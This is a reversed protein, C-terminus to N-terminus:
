LIKPAQSDDKTPLLEELSLSAPSEPDSKADKKAPDEAVFSRYSKILTDLARITNADLPDESALSLLNLKRLERELIDTIKQKM